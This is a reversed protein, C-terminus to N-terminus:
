SRYRSSARVRHRRVADRNACGPSCYRQRGTRSMDAFPRGCDTVACRGLRHMGRGALHLATGVSILAQLIAALPLDSDRYHIHWGDGAHDTLRPYASAQLLMANLLRARTRNDPADVVAAWRDLFASTEALDQKRVPLDLVLGASRCRVALEEATTPPNGTLDVALRVPDEGYPNIRM